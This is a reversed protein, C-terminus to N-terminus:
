KRKEWKKNILDFNLISSGLLVFSYFFDEIPISLFKIGVISNYNYWVIPPATLLYNVIIFPIYTIFISIWFVSSNLGQFNIISYLLFFLSLFVSVLFTYEGIDYLLTSLLFIFSILYFIYRNINLRINRLYFNAVAYLFIGCYPIVFFFLIEEIPLNLFYIGAVYKENFGWHRNKTAFYDWMLFVFATPIISVLVIPFKKYFKLNNEFSFIIPILASFLLIFFYESM